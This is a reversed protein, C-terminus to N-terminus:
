DAKLCFSVVFWWIYGVSGFTLIQCLGHSLALCFLSKDHLGISSALFLYKNWIQWLFNQSVRILRWKWFLIKAQKVDTRGKTSLNKNKWGFVICWREQMMYSVPHCVALKKKILKTNLISADQHTSLITKSFVWVGCIKAMYYNIFQAVFCLMYMYFDVYKLHCHLTQMLKWNLTCHVRIVHM